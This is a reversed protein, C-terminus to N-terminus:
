KSGKITLQKRKLGLSCCIAKKAQFWDALLLDQPM